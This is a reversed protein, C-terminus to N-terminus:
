CAPQISLSFHYANKKYICKLISILDCIQFLVCGVLISHKLVKENKKMENLLEDAKFFTEFGFHKVNAFLEILLIM